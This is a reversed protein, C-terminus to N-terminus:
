GRDNNIDPAPQSLRRLVLMPLTLAGLLAGIGAYVHWDCTPIDPCTPAKTFYAVIKSLLVAIMSGSVAGIPVMFCGIATKPPGGQREPQPSAGM